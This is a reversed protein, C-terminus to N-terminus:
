PTHYAEFCNEPCLSHHTPCGRCYYSTRKRAGHQTDSCVLCQRQTGKAPFHKLHTNFREPDGAAVRPRKRPRGPPPRPTRTSLHRTALADVISCWFQSHSFPNTTSTRYLIYSNVVTVEFLWFFLKRWWKRSKRVFSYYVTYQDAKDVGNM